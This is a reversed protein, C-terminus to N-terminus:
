DLVRLLRGNGQAKRPWDHARGQRRDHGHRLVLRPQRWAAEDAKKAFFTAALRPHPRRPSRRGMRGHWHCLAPLGHQRSLAQATCINSTAKDRRIHQKARRALGGPCIAPVAHADVSQRRNRAADARTLKEAVACYAANRPAGYLGYPCASVHQLWRAISPAPASPPSSRAHDAGAPRAFLCWWVDIKGRRPRHPEQPDVFVGRSDALVILSANRRRRLRKGLENGLPEARTTVCGETQPANGRRDRNKQRKQRNHRYAIQRGGGAM